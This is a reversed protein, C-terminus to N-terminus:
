KKYLAVLAMIIVRLFYNQLYKSFYFFLRLEKEQFVPFDTFLSEILAFTKPSSPTPHPSPSGKELFTGEVRGLIERDM